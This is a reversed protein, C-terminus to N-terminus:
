SDKLVAAGDSLEYPGAGVRQLIAVGPETWAAGCAPCAKPIPGEEWAIAGCSLCKLARRTGESM